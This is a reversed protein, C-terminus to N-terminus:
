AEEKGRKRGMAYATAVAKALEATGIGQAVLDGNARATGPVPVIVYVKGIRTHWEFKLGSSPSHIRFIEPPAPPGDPTKPDLNLDIALM